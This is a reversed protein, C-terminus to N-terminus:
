QLSTCHHPDIAHRVIAVDHPHRSIGISMIEIKGHDIHPRPIKIVESQENINTICLVNYYIFLHISSYEIRNKSDMIDFWRFLLYCPM